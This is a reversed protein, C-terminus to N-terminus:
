APAPEFIRGRVDEGRAAIAGVEHLFELWRLDLRPGEPSVAFGAGSRLALALVLLRQVLDDGAGQLTLGEGHVQGELSLRCRGDVERVSLAPTWPESVADM